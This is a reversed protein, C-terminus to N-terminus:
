TTGGGKHRVIKIGAAIISAEGEAIRRLREREADRDGKKELAFLETIKMRAYREYFWRLGSRSGTLQKEADHCATTFADRTRYRWKRPSHKNWRAFRDSWEADPHKLCVFELLEIKRRELPRSREPLTKSRKMERWVSRLEELLFTLPVRADSDITIKLQDQLEPPAGTAFGIAPGIRRVRTRIEPAATGAKEALKRLLGWRLDREPEDDSEYIVEDKSV